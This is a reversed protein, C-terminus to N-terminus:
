GVNKALNSEATWKLLAATIYHYQRSLIHSMTKRKGYFHRSKQTLRFIIFFFFTYNELSWIPNESLNAQMDISSGQSILNSSFQIDMTYQSSQVLVRKM